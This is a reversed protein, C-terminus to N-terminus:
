TNVVLHVISMEGEPTLVLDLADPKYLTSEDNLRVWWGTSSGHYVKVCIPEDNVVLHVNVVLHMGQSSQKPKM